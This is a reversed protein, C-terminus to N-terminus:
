NMSYSILKDGFLNIKQMLLLRIGWVFINLIPLIISVGIFQLALDSFTAGFSGVLNNLVNDSLFNISPDLPQHTIISLFLLISFLTLTIGFIFISTNKMALYITPPLFNNKSVGTRRKSM